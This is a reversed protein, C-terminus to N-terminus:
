QYRVLWAFVSMSLLLYLLSPAAAALWPQWNQLLGLHSSIHNILVFSIGLMIGGFIKLSMSGSRAHLYAFPLALAIMVLCVLPYFSKKWFQIEYRQAAQANSALHRTYRWLAFASMSEPPLVSASVVLPTLSSSWDLTAAKREDIVKLGALAADQSLREHSLWRTDTVGQLRWVSGEAPLMAGAERAAQVANVKASAASLRRTLQGRADFEFIRVLGFEGESLASGVNVTITHTGMGPVERKERLWTGGRGLTLQQQSSFRAHQQTLMQEALPVAWNGIGAVLLASMLGLGALLQLARWPGLGGTRLITFESTQAMRSLALIGGILLAIPMLDYIHRVQMLLCTWLADLVTYGNKGLDQSEEVFDIFFALAAFALAVLTASSAVSRYILRRVTRM